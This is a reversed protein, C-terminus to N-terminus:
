SVEKLKSYQEKMGDIFFDLSNNPRVWVGNEDEKYVTNFSDTSCVIKYQFYECTRETPLVHKIKDILAFKVFKVEQEGFADPPYIIELAVLGGQEFQKHHHSALVKFKITTKRIACKSWADQIKIPGTTPSLEYFHQSNEFDENEEKGTIKYLFIGPTGIRINTTSM